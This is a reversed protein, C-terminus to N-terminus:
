GKMRGPRAGRCVEAKERGEVMSRDGRGWCHEHRQGQEEGAGTSVEHGEEPSSSNLNPVQEKLIGLGIWGLPSPTPM